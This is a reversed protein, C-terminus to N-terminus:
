NRGATRRTEAYIIDNRKCPRPRSEEYIRILNARDFSPFRTRGRAERVRRSIEERELFQSANSHFIPHNNNSFILFKKKKSILLIQIIPNNISTRKPTILTQIFISQYFFSSLHFISDRRSLCLLILIQFYFNFIFNM